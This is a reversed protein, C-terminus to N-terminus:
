LMALRGRASVSCILLIAIPSCMPDPVYLHLANFDRCRLAGLPGADNPIRQDEAFSIGGAVILLAPVSFGSSTVRM